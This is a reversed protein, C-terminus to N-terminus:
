FPLFPVDTFGWQRLALVIKGRHHVEHHTLYLVRNRGTFTYKKGQWEGSYKTNLAAGNKAQFHKPLRKQSARLAKLLNARTPKLERNPGPGGDKMLRFM